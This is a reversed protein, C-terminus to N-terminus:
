FETFELKEQSCRAVHLIRKEIESASKAFVANKIVTNVKSRALPRLKAIVQGFDAVTRSTANRWEDLFLFLCGTYYDCIGQVVPPISPHSQIKKCNAIHDNLGLEKLSEIAVCTFNLSVLIFPIEYIPSTSTKFLISALAPCYDLLYLVLLLGFIGTSRLDTGPDDGQFGLKEWCPGRTPPDPDSRKPKLLKRYLTTLIRRHLVKGHDLEVFQLCLLFDRDDYEATGSVISHHWCSRFLASLGKQPVHDAVRKITPLSKKWLIDGKLESMADVFSIFPLTPIQIDLSSGATIQLNRRANAVDWEDVEM